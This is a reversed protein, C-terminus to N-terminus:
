ATQPQPKVNNKGTMKITTDILKAQRDKDNQDNDNSVQKAKENKADQIMGQQEQQQQEQQQKQQEAMKKQMEERKRLSRRLERAVDDMTGIWYTKAYGEADLVGQGDAFLRTCESMAMQKQEPPIRKIDIRFDENLMDKTIIIASAKEDGTMIALKRPNDAYIQKGQQAMCRYSQRLIETMAFYYDEQILSGREIMADTVGKLERQGGGSGTMAENVGTMSESFGKLVDVVKYFEAADKTGTNHYEGISNNVGIGNDDIIIAKGVNINRQIDEEPMENTIAGKAIVTGGMRTNNMNAEAMSSVRNIYRQIDLMM